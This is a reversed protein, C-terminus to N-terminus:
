SAVRPLETETVIRRTTGYGGNTVFADVKPFLQDVSHITRRNCEVSDATALGDVEEGRRSADRTGIPLHRMFEVISNKRVVGMYVV